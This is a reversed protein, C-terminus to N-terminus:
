FILILSELKFKLADSILKQMHLLILGWNLMKLHLYNLWYNICLRNNIFFRYEAVVKTMFTQTSMYIYKCVFMFVRVDMCYSYREM